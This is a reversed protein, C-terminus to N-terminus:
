FTCSFVLCFHLAFRCWSLFIFDLFACDDSMPSLDFVIGTNKKTYEAQKSSYFIFSAQYGTKLTRFPIIIRLTTGSIEFCIFRFGQWKSYLPPFFCQHCICDILAIFTQTHAINVLVASKDQQSFQGSVLMMMQHMTVCDDNCAIEAELGLRWTALPRATM